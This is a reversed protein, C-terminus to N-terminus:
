ANQSIVMCSSGPRLRSALFLIFDCRVKGDSGKAALVMGNSVFGALKAPRLNCVVLVLSGQMEELSVHERLGSAIQRPADEGVDIEECYLREADEHNWM